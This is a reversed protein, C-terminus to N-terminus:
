THYMELKNMFCTNELRNTYIGANGKLSKSKNTAILHRTATKEM